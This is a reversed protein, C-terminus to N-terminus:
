EVYDIDRSSIDQHRLSSPCWCGHYQGLKVSMVRDGCMLPSYDCYLVIVIGIKKMPITM